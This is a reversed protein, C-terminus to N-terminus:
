LAIRDLVGALAVAAARAGANFNWESQARDGVHNSIGRIELAPVNALAAARLVSFGEMSEVDAGYRAALRLGTEATTTVQTVTLGTGRALPLGACRALLAADAAVHRVLTAGEPLAPEGGSELGFDALTEATILLGDGVRARGPFAGAIGANVVAAYRDRALARTVAIAAEITGVGCPLIVVGARPEFFRLESALACAVLIM